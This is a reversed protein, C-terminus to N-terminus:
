SRLADRRTRFEEEDIEGRAFREELIALPGRSPSGGQPRNILMRVIIVAGAILLGLFLLAALPGIWMEHHRGYEVIRPGFMRGAEQALQYM